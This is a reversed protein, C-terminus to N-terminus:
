YKLFLYTCTEDLKKFIKVLPSCQESTKLLWLLDCQHPPCFFKYAEPAVWQLSWDYWYHPLIGFVLINWFQYGLENQSVIIM